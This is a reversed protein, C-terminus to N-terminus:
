QNRNCLNVFKNGASLKFTLVRNGTQSNHPATHIEPNSHINSLNSEM